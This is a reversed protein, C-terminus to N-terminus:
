TDLFDQEFKYIVWLVFISLAEQVYMCYLLDIPPPFRKLQLNDSGKKITWKTYM